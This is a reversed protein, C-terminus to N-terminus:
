FTRGPEDDSTRYLLVRANMTTGTQQGVHIYTLAGFSSAGDTVTGPIGTYGAYPTTYLYPLTGRLYGNSGHSALISDMETSIAVTGNGDFIYYPAYVLAPSSAYNAMGRSGGNDVGRCTFADHILSSSSPILGDVSGLM